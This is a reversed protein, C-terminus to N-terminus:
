SLQDGLELLLSVGDQQGRVIHFLGVLERVPDADDVGALDDGEIRGFSKFAADILLFDDAQFHGAPM